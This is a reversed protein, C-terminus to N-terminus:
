GERRMSAIERGADSTVAATQVTKSSGPQDSAEVSEAGAELVPEGWNTSGPKVGSLYVLEYGTQQASLSLSPAQDDASPPSRRIIEGFFDSLKRM